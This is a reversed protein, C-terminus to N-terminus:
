IIEENISYVEKAKLQNPNNELITLGFLFGSLHSKAIVGYQFIENQFKNGVEEINPYLKDLINVFLPIDDTNKLFDCLPVTTINLNALMELKYNGKHELPIKFKLKQNIKNPWELTKNNYFVYLKQITKKDINLTKPIVLIINSLPNLINGGSDMTILDDIKHLSHDIKKLYVIDNLSDNYGILQFDSSPKKFKLLLCKETQNFLNLDFHNSDAAKIQVNIPLVHNDNLTLQAQHAM